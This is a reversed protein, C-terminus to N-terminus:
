VLCDRDPFKSFNVYVQCPVLIVREIRSGFVKDLHCFGNIRFWDNIRITTAFFSFIWYSFILRDYIKNIDFFLFVASDKKSEATNRITDFFMYGIFDCNERLLQGAFQGNEQM